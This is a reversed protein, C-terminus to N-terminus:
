LSFVECALFENLPYVYHSAKILTSLFYVNKLIAKVKVDVLHVLSPQM